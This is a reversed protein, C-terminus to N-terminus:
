GLYTEMLLIVKCGGQRGSYKSMIVQRSFGPSRYQSSSPSKTVVSLSPSISIANRQSGLRADAAVLTFSHNHIVGKGCANADCWLPTCRGTQARTINM